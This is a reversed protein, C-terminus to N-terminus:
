ASRHPAICNVTCTVYEGAGTVTDTAMGVVYETTDSGATKGDVQGDASTGIVDGATIAGNAQIKGVGILGITAAKGLTDPKNLLVGHPIDTAAAIAAVRGNTDLKVFKLHHASIDAAAERTDTLLWNERAM